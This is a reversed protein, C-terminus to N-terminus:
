TLFSEVRNRLELRADCLFSGGKNALKASYETAQLSCRYAITKTDTALGTLISEILWCEYQDQLDPLYKTPVHTRNGPKQNPESLWGKNALLNYLRRITDKHDPM